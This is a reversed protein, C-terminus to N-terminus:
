KKTVRPPLQDQIQVDWLTASTSELVVNGNSYKMWQQSNNVKIITLDSEEISQFLWETAVSVSGGKVNNGDAYLYTNEANRLYYVNNENPVPIREWSQKKLASNPPTGGPARYERPELHAYGNLDCATPNGGVIKILVYTLETKESKM